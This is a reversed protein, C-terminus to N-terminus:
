ALEAAKDRFAALTSYGSAYGTIATVFEGFILNQLAIGAGSAIAALIALGQLFYESRGAFRFM